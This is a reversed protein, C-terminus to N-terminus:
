PKSPVVTFSAGDSIFTYMPVGYSGDPGINEALTRVFFECWDKDPEEADEAQSTFWLGSCARLSAPDLAIGVSVDYFDFSGEFGVVRGGPRIGSKLEEPIDCQTIMLRGWVPGAEQEFEAITGNEALVREIEAFMKPDNLM